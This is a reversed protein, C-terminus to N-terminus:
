GPRYIVEWDMFSFLLKEVREKTPIPLITDANLYIFRKVEHKYQLEDMSNLNKFAKYPTSCSSMILIIVAMGTYIYNKIM